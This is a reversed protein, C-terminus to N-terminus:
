ENLKDIYIHFGCVAKVKNNEDFIAKCCHIYYSNNKQNHYLISIIDGMNDIAANYWELEYLNTSTDLKEGNSSIFFDAESDSNVKLYYFSAEDSSEAAVLNLCDFLSKYDDATSAYNAFTKLNAIKYSLLDTISYKVDHIIGDTKSIINKKIIDNTVVSFSIVIYLAVVFMPLMNGLIIVPSLTLDKKTM